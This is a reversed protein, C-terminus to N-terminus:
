HGQWGRHGRWWFPLLCSDGKQIEVIVLFFLSGKCFVTADICQEHVQFCTLVGLNWHLFNTEGILVCALLSGLEQCPNKGLALLIVMLIADHAKWVFSKASCAFLKGFPKVACFYLWAMVISYSLSMDVNVCSFSLIIFVTLLITKPVATAKRGPYIM